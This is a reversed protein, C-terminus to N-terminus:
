KGANSSDLLEPIRELITEAPQIVLGTLQKTTKLYEMASDYVENGKFFADIEGKPLDSVNPIDAKGKGFVGDAINALGLGIFHTTVVASSGALPAVGLAAFKVTAVGSVFGFTVQSGGKMIKVTRPHEEVFENWNLKATEIGQKIREIATMMADSGDANVFSLSEQLQSSIEEVFAESHGEAVISAIIAMNGNRYNIDATPMELDNGTKLVPNLDNGSANGDVVIRARVLVGASDDVFDLSYVQHPMLHVGEIDSGLNNEGLIYGWASEVHSTPSEHHEGDVFTTEDTSHTTEVPEGPEESHSEEIGQAILADFEDVSMPRQNANVESAFLSDQIGKLVFRPIPVYVHIHKSVTVVETQVNDRDTNIKDPDDSNELDHINLAQRGDANTGSVTAQTQRSKDEVTQEFEFDGVIGSGYTQSKKDLNISLSGGISHNNDFEDISSYVLTGAEVNSAEPPGDFIAGVIHLEGEVYVDLKESAHIGTVMNVWASETRSRSGGISGSTNISGSNSYSSSRDVMSEIKFRKATINAEKTEVFVGRM